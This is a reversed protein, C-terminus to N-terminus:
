WTWWTNIGNKVKKKGTLTQSVFALVYTLRFKKSSAALKSFKRFNEENQLLSIRFLQSQVMNASNLTRMHETAETTVPERM